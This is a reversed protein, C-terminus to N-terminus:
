ERRFVEEMTVWWEEDPSSSLSRQMPMVVSWWRRTAPDAAIRAMDAEYDAGRYEFYGFLLDGHRFITYNSVNACSLMELVEAPVARHLEVYEQATEDRLEIVQGVRRVPAEENEPMLGVGMPQRRPRLAGTGKHRPPTRSTSDNDLSSV